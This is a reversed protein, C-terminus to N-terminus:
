YKNLEEKLRPFLYNEELHIYELVKSEFEKLIEYTRDYTACGDKPASYGKTIKNLDEFLNDINDEESKLLNKEQFIEELLEKRPRRDYIKVLPLINIGEKIMRQVLNIQIIHYIRHVKSLEKHDKGHVKLITTTLTSINKMEKQFYEHYVNSIINVLNTLSENQLEVIKNEM